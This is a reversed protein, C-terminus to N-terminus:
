LLRTLADPDLEVDANAVAIWPSRSRAAAVNVAAGFGVNEDLAVLDVWPFGSRVLEASGDSSANDVVSVRARGAEVEPEISTLCAALLDRTHWSVVAIAVRAAMLSRWSIAWM